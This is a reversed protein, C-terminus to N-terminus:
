IREMQIYFRRAAPAMHDHFYFGHLTNIVIPVGAMRAALQGLLGAKPTHTHVITFRERRMVGYLRLLSGLDALPTFNRTMPVAIHRIGAQEIIPAEPGPASIAIVEYGSQQISHLQNLLLYHLSMDVTTIHAAKVRAISHRM